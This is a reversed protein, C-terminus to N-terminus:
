TTTKRVVKNKIEVEKIKTAKGTKTNLHVGKGNEKESYFTLMYEM